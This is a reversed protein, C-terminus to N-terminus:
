AVSSEHRPDQNPRSSNIAKPLRKRLIYYNKIANLFPMWPLRGMIWLEEWFKTREDLFRLITSFSNRKFLRYFIDRVTHGQQHIIYLLLNDYFAFRARNPLKYTPKGKKMLSDVINTTDDQISKFTYGTTPKTFGGATGINMIRKGRMRSFSHNTMPIDGMEEQIIKFTKGPFNKEMYSTIHPLYAEREWAGGSFVTYEVLAKRKNLPLVYVFRTDSGQEISFDMLTMQEPDFTDEDMELFWGYFHQSLYIKQTDKKQTPFHISNFIWDAQYQGGDTLVRAGQAHDEMALIREYRFEINPNGKLEKYINQYFDGSSVFHYAMPSISEELTGEPSIFKLNEWGIYESTFFYQTKEAWFCWTKDNTTKAETDLILIRKHKLPSRNIRAALSLGACGGGAIIYDYDKM